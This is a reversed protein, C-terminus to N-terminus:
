WKKMLRAQQGARYFLPENPFNWIFLLIRDNKNIGAKNENIIKVGFVARTVWPCPPISPTMAWWIAWRKKMMEM